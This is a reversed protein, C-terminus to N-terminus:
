LMLTIVRLTFGTVFFIAGMTILMTDKAMERKLIDYREDNELGEVAIRYPGKISYGALTAGYLIFTMGLVAIPLSKVFYDILLYAVLIIGGNRYFLTGARDNYSKAMLSKIEEMEEDDWDRLDKFESAVTIRVLIRYM